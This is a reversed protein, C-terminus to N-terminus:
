LEGVRSPEKVCHLAFLRPMWERHEPLMAEWPLADCSFWRFEVFERHPPVRERFEKQTLRVSYLHYRRGASETTGLFRFRRTPLHKHTEERLERKAARIHLENARRKGGPLGWPFENGSADLRKTKMRGLLLKGAHWVLVLVRENERKERM